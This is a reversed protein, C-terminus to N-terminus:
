ALPEAGPCLVDDRGNQRGADGLTLVQGVSESVPATLPGNDIAKAIKQEISSIHTCAAPSVGAAIAIDRVM